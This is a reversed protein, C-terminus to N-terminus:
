NIMVNKSAVSENVMYYKKDGLTQNTIKFSAIQLIGNGEGVSAMESATFTVSTTTGAVTKMVSGDPGHVAFISSDANNISGDHVLTYSSAGSIDTAAEDVKSVTPFPFLNALGNISSHGSGGTISWEVGNNSFGSSPITTEVFTYANNSQIELNGDLSSNEFSVVGADVFSSGGDTFWAVATALKITTEFGAVSQTTITNIAYFVGDADGLSLEPSAASATEEITVDQSESDSGGAGEVTLTVTYTGAASYTHTPNEEMSTEGDGFEWSYSTADSGTFTFTATNGEVTYTFSATAAPDVDDDDKNCDTFSVLAILTLAIAAFPKFIKLLSM